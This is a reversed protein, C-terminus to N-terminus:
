NNVLGTAAFQLLHHPGASVPQSSARIVLIKRGEGARKIHSTFNLTFAKDAVVEFDM